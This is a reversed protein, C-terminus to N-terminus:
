GKCGGGHQSHVMLCAIKMNDHLMASHFEEQLDDSVEMFFRSMEDRPNSILSPDYTSLKTFKLFYELM